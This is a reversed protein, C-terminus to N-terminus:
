RETSRPIHTRVRRLLPTSVSRQIQSMFWFVFFPRKGISVNPQHTVTQLGNVVQKAVWAQHKVTVATHSVLHLPFSPDVYAM